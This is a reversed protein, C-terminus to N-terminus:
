IVGRRSRKQQDYSEIISFGSDLALLDPHLDTITEGGPISWPLYWHCESMITVETPKNETPRPMRYLSGDRRAGRNFAQISWNVDGLTDELGLPIHQSLVSKLNVELGREVKLNQIRLTQQKFPDMQRWDSGDWSPFGPIEDTRQSSEKGIRRHKRWRSMLAKDKGELEIWSFCLCVQSPEVMRPEKWVM